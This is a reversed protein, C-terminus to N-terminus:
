YRWSRVDAGPPATRLMREVAWPLVMQPYRLRSYANARTRDGNWCHEARDGYDVVADAPPNASRFFAEVLYVANNLYYNDMDGVYIRLKGRLKPGLTKWDRRLIYSLDYHDRWYEAVSRDITGTLKDWIPKPYGDPGVPSYVSQWVDWQDGSRSRTGLALERHNTQELTTSVQGLYNRQGPRPTRKWRAGAYYANTDEYVNVVTYARFDIPDPCAVWAGNYEDPYFMQVALAEWGGTSGGFTFRAWGQGIGRFRREIEPILEYQIADGYPGSNASNVAYSDDYFPTPHQIEILLARPFAKGTWDKYLQWAHEQQIRNYGRLHFRESYDPALTTDPPTERWGDLGSPFHGHNVVLPYRADPHEDFGWPLLVWAALHTDRGWFKSLRDSRIKVYKVYKTQQAAFDAVPPIEQDLAIRVVDGRTPDLAVARPRSYLNGPKRNWQQGEGRDPPLKVTRGDGRRFTEYRNVLAQVRYTGRPLEALSRLPYGFAGADVVREEGPRWGDVDVGFVLQTNPGDSIQFRPEETTDASILLLLRGDIPAASRERPFTVAFRLPATRAQASQAGQAGQASQGDAAAPAAVPLLATALARATRTRCLASLRRVRHLM